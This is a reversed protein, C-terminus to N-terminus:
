WALDEDREEFFGNPWLDNFGGSENIRIKKISSIGDINQVYLVSIFEPIVQEERVRRLLRLVLHESHTEIFFSKVASEPKVLKFPDREDGIKWNVRYNFDSEIAESIFLDALAGQMRPHIHLEPQEMSFFRIEPMLSGVIVPLVQSMGVGIDQAGAHHSGDSAKFAVINHQLIEASDYFTKHKKREFDVTYNNKELAIQSTTKGDFEGMAEIGTLMRDVKSSNYLEIHEYGIRREFLDISYGSNLSKLWENVSNVLEFSSYHENVQSLKQWFRSGDYDKSEHFEERVDPVIRLPGLHSSADLEGYLIEFPSTLLLEVFSTLIKRELTTTTGSEWSTSPLSVQMSVSPVKGELGIVFDGNFIDQNLADTLVNFVESFDTNEFLSHTKNVESIIWSNSGLEQRGSYSNGGDSFLNNVTQKVTSSVRFFPVQNFWVEFQDVMQGPVYNLTVGVSDILSTFRSFDIYSEHLSEEYVEILEILENASRSEIIDMSSLEVSAGISFSQARKTDSTHFLRNFKTHSYDKVGNKLINLAQVISSKGASNPGFLLTIPAFDITTPEKFSKFNELRLQTIRM